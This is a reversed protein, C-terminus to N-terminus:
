TTLPRPEPRGRRRLLLAAGIAPAAAPPFGGDAGITVAPHLAACGSAGCVSLLSMEKAQAAPAVALVAVGALVVIAKRM